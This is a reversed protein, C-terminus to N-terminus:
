FLFSSFATVSASPTARAVTPRFSFFSRGSVRYDVDARSYRALARLADRHEGSHAREAALHVPTRGDHNYSQVCDQPLSKYPVRFYPHQVEPKTLSRSLAKVVLARGARAAIHLPTDGVFSFVPFFDRRRFIASRRRPRFFVPFLSFVPFFLSM